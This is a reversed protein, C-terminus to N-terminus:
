VAEDLWCRKLYSKEVHLLSVGSYVTYRQGEKVLVLIVEHTTPLDKKILKQKENINNRREM